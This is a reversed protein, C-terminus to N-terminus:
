ERSCDTETGVIGSIWVSSSVSWAVPEQIRVANRSEAETAVGIMPRIPSEKPLRRIYTHLRAARM